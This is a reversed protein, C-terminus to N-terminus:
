CRTSELRDRQLMGANDAVIYESLPVIWAAEVSELQKSRRPTGPDQDRPAALHDRGRGGDTGLPLALDARELRLPAARTSDAWTGLIYGRLFRGRHSAKEGSRNRRAGGFKRRM